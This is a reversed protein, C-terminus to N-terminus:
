FDTGHSIIPLTQNAGLMPTTEENLCHNVHVPLNYAKSKYLSRMTGRVHLDSLFLRSLLKTDSGLLSVARHTLLKSPVEGAGSVQSLM